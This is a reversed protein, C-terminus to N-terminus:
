IDCMRVDILPFLKNILDLSVTHTGIDFKEAMGKVIKELLDDPIHKKLDDHFRKPHSEMKLSEGQIIRKQVSVQFDHFAKSVDFGHIVFRDDTKPERIDMDVNEPSITALEANDESDDQDKISTSPESSTSITQPSTPQNSTSSHDVQKQMHLYWLIVCSDKM